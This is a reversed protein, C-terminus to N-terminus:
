PPSSRAVIGPLAVGEASPLPVGLLAAVAPAVGELQLRPLTDSRAIGAGAAVFGTRLEAFDPYYGHAGGRASRLAAGREACTFVIGPEAALAARPDAGVRALADHDFVRFLRKTGPPLADLLARVKGLTPSRRACPRARAVTSTSPRIPSSSTSRRSIRGTPRSSTPWRAPTTATIAPYKYYVDRTALTGTASRQVEEFLGPPTAQAVNFRTNYVIGRRAPAVGKALTTHSPYTLTPFVGDVGEAVVGRRATPAAPWPLRPSSRRALPRRSM